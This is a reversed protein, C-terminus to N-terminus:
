KNVVHVSTSRKNGAADKAVVRIRHKGLSESFTDKFKAVTGGQSVKLKVRHGNVLVRVPLGNAGAHVVGSVTTKTGKVVDGSGPATIRPAPMMDHEAKVGLRQAGGTLLASSDAFGVGVSGGRPIVLRPLDM